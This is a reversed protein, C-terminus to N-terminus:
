DLLIGKLTFHTRCQWTNKKINNTEQCESMSKVGHKIFFIVCLGGESIFVLKSFASVFMGVGYTHHRFVLSSVYQSWEMVLCVDLCACWRLLIMEFWARCIQFYYLWHMISKFHSICIAWHGVCLHPLFVSAYVNRLYFEFSAADNTPCLLLICVCVKLGSYQVQLTISWTSLKKLSHWTTTIGHQDTDILQNSSWYVEM